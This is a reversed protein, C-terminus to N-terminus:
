SRGQPRALMTEWQAHGVLARQKGRRVRVGKRELSHGLSGKIGRMSRASESHAREALLFPVQGGERMEQVM